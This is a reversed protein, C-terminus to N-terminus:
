NYTGAALMVIDGPQAAALALNITAYGSPVNRVAASLSSLSLLIALFYRM